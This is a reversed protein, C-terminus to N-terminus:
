PSGKIDIFSRNNKHNTTVYLINKNKCANQKSLMKYLLGFPGLTKMM